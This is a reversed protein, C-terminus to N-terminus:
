RNMLSGVNVPKAVQRRTVVVPEAPTKGSFAGYRRTGIPMQGLRTVAGSVVVPPEAFSGYRRSGIAMQSLRTIPGGAALLGPPFVSAPFVSTPFVSTPFFPM